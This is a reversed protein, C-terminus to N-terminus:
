VVTITQLFQQLWVNHSQLCLVRKITHIDITHSIGITEHPNIAMVSLKHSVTM